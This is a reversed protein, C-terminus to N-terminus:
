WSLGFRLQEIFLLNSNSSQKMLINYFTQLSKFGNRILFAVFKLLMKSKFIFYFRRIAKKKGKISGGIDRLSFFVIKKVSFSRFSHSFRWYWSVFCHKWYSLVASFYTSLNTTPNKKDIKFVKQCDLNFLSVWVYKKKMWVKKLALFITLSIKFLIM